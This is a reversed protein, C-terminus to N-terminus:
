GDKLRGKVTEKQRLVYFATLREDSATNASLIFRGFTLFVYVIGGAPQPAAATGHLPIGLRDRLM